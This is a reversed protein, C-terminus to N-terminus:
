LVIDIHCVNYRGQLPSYLHFVSNNACIDVEM